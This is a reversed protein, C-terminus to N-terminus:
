LSPCHQAHCNFYMYTKRSQVRLEAESELKRINPVKPSAELQRPGKVLKSSGSQNELAQSQGPMASAKLPMQPTFHCTSSAQRETKWM